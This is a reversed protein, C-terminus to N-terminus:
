PLASAVARKALMPGIADAASRSSPRSGAASAAGCVVAASTRAIRRASCAAPHLPTAGDPPLYAGGRARDATLRAVSTRRLAGDEYLEVAGPDERLAPHAALADARGVSGLCWVALGRVQPDAHDLAAVVAPLVDGAVEAASPGMRGIGWLIGPRFHELDEDATELLLHAVIPAYEGYADPRRAVIEAMAEPARWCIAGSEETILWMLRRLLERGASPDDAALREAVAGLAEVARWGITPDADYTLSILLGLNRRREVAMTAIESLRREELLARLARKSSPGGMDAPPPM